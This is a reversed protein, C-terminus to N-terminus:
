SRPASSSSRRTRAKSTTASRSRRRRRTSRTTSKRSTSAPPSTSRLQESGHNNTFELRISCKPSTRMRPRDRAARTAGRSAVDLRDVSDRRASRGADIARHRALRPRRDLIRSRGRRSVAHAQRRSRRTRHTPSLVEVALLLRNVDHFHEPRRGDVLPIVFVDPQVLREHPSSSTPRACRLRPRRARAQPIRASRRVAGAVAEQHRLSPAPTVFLEGDIVEYRNGDDPLDQSIPPPGGGSSRPCPCVIPLRPGLPCALM